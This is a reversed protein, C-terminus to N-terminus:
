RIEAPHSLPSSNGTPNGPTSAPESGPLGPNTPSEVIGLAFWIRYNRSRRFGFGIRKIRKILNNIAETPGNSVHAQHWAVIQSKWRILTPGLSNM